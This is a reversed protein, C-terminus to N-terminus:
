ELNGWGRHSAYGWMRRRFVEGDGSDAWYGSHRAEVRERKEKEAEGM